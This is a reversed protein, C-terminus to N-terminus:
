LPGSFKTKGAGEQNGYVGRDLRESNIETTGELEKGSSKVM